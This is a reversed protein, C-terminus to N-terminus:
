VPESCLSTMTVEAIYDSWSDLAYCWDCVNLIGTRIPHMAHINFNSLFCSETHFECREDNASFGSDKDILSIVGLIKGDPERIAMCMFSNFHLNSTEVNNGKALNITKGTTAVM